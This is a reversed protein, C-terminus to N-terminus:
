ELLLLMGPLAPTGGATNPTGGFVDRGGQKKFAVARWAVGGFFFRQFAILRSAPRSVRGAAVPVIASGM